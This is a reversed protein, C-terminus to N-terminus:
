EGLELLNIDMHKKSGESGEELRYFRPTNKEYLGEEDDTWDVQVVIMNSPLTGTHKPVSIKPRGSHRIPEGPPEISTSPDSFLWTGRFMPRTKDLIDPRYGSYGSSKTPELFKDASCLSKLMHQGSADDTLRKKL